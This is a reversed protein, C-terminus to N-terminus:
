ESARSFSARCISSVPNMCSYKECPKLIPELFASARIDGLFALEFAQGFDEGASPNGVAKAWQPPIDKFVAARLRRPVFLFDRWWVLGLQKEEGSGERCAQPGGRGKLAPRDDGM